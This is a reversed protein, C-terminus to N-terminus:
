KDVEKWELNAIKYALKFKEFGKANYWEDFLGNLCSTGNVMKKGDVTLPCNNCNQSKKNNSSIECAFCYKIPLEENNANHTNLWDRKSEVENNALSNWMERHAEEFTMGNWLHPLGRRRFVINRECMTGNISTAVYSFQSRYVRIIDFNHNFKGGSCYRMDNTYALIACAKDNNILFKDIYILRTGDRLEICDRNKLDAKTFVSNM